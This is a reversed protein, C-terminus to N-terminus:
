IPRPSITEFRRCAMFRGIRRIIRRWVHQGAPTSIIIADVVFPFVDTVSTKNQSSYVATKLLAPWLVLVVHRARQFGLPFQKSERFDSKRGPDLLTPFHFKALTNNMVMRSFTVTVKKKNTKKRGWNQKLTASFNWLLNLYVEKLLFCKKM